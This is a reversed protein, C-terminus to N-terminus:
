IPPVMGLVPSWVMKTLLNEVQEDSLREGGSRHVWTSLVQSSRLHPRHFRVLHSKSEGLSRTGM